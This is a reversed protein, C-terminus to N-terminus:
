VSHLSHQVGPETYPSSKGSSHSWVHEKSSCYFISKLFLSVGLLIEVPHTQLPSSGLQGTKLTLHIQSEKIEKMRVRVRRSLLGGLSTGNLDECKTQGPHFENAVAPGQLHKDVKSRVGRLTTPCLLFM